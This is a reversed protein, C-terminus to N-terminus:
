VGSSNAAVRPRRASPTGPASRRTVAVTSRAPAGPAKSVRRAGPSCPLIRTVGQCAAAGSKRANTHRVRRRFDRRTARRSTRRSTRSSPPIHAPVIFRDTSLKKSGDRDLCLAVGRWPGIAGGGVLGPSRHRRDVGVASELEADEQGREVRDALVRGQRELAVQLEDLMEVLEAEVLGPEALVVGGAVLDDGRGLHEDGGRCLARPVDAEARAHRGQGVVVGEHQGVAHHQEVVQRPSADHEADARAGEGGVGVHHADVRRFLRSM